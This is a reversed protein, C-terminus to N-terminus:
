HTPPATARDGQNPPGRVRSFRLLSRQPAAHEWGTRYPGPQASAPAEAPGRARFFSILVDLSSCCIRIVIIYAWRQPM